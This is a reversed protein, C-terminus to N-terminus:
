PASTDVPPVTTEVPVTTTAAPVTTTAAPATTTTATTGGGTKKAPVNLKQGVILRNPDQTPNALTLDAVSVGLKNAIKTYNDGSEITYTGSIAIPASPPNGNSGRVVPLKLTKGVILLTSDDVGNLAMLDEKSIGFKNAIRSLNDGSEITYLLGSDVVAPGSATTAQGPALTTSSPPPPVTLAGAQVTTPPPITQVAGDGTGTDVNPLTTEGFSPFATTTTADLGDASKDGGGSCAATTLVLGLALGVM